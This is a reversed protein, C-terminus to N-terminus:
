YFLSNDCFSSIGANLKCLKERTNLLAEECEFVKENIENMMNFVSDAEYRKKMFKVIGIIKEDYVIEAYRKEAIHKENTNFKALLDEDIVRQAKDGDYVDVLNIENNQYYVVCMEM